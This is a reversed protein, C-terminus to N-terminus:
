QGREPSRVACKAEFAAVDAPTNLNAWTNTSWEAPADLACFDQDSCLGQVSLRGSDVRKAIFGAADARFVSPFPEIREPAGRSVRCMVGRCQPRVALSEVLWVLVAPAVGPMDVTVIAVTPTLLHTLATLIGRLPGLGDSPDVVERDFLQCGPPHMASPATVLMTPGLWQMRTLLWDLIPRQELELWAKPLGMRDGRGGALIALTVNSLDISPSASMLM